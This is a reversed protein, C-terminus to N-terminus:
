LKAKLAKKCSLDINLYQEIGHHYDTWLYNKIWGHYVVSHPTHITCIIPAYEAVMENLQEYLATREPAQSANAAQEYLHNYTGNSFNAGIGVHQDSRYFLSLFSEADPYDASWSMAHMMTKKQSVKKLLEPFLNATVKIKVGIREMCKKFFEAKQRQNTNSSTDLTIEPLGQGGPYGAEALLTKAKTLDHSHYPNTYDKRYGPLGPPIISQALVANDNHFLQNYQQRDLALSMAQKLKVNDKFLVHSNNFACFSTNQEPELFLQMGKERWQPALGAGQVIELAINDRSTDVIDVSGQRFKLWRPQEEPLIHTIVKDVLPLKKGADELLHQYAETAESPYFKDRFTPNKHYVLKNLQPNFEQLTFPGTGVPHNMFEAGYYQVAEQPVVYCFNIALIHMFQHWPQNLTFQVTHQDLAKLGVISETYDAQAAEIYKNRWADLGKIKGALVSFWPSRAKPDAVRKLTYVVDEAVLARGKGDAFCADDHFQVDERITFTYVCNDESITPMAVALNPVLEVPRKLYHYALLGEYVKSVEQTTYADDAQAPDFGKIPNTSVTVLVKENKEKSTRTHRIYWWFVLIALALVGLRVINKNGM